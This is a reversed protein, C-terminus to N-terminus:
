FKKTCKHLKTCRHKPEIENNIQNISMETHVENSKRNGM